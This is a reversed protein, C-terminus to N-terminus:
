RRETDLAVSSNDMMAVHSSATDDGGDYADIDADTSSAGGAPVRHADGFSAHTHSLAKMRFTENNPVALRERGGYVQQKRPVYLM